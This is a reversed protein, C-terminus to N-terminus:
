QHFFDKNRRGSVSNTRYNNWERILLDNCSRKVFSYPAPIYIETGCFTSIRAFHDALENGPNGAHEKVWVLSALHKAKYLHEKASLVFNSKINASRLAENSSKIDAFIQIKVNKDLTWGAAFDITALEAQFVSNFINLKYCHVPLLSNREFICVSFGVNGDIKSGDTYVVYDCVFHKELIVIKENSHSGKIDRFFDLKLPDMLEIHKDSILKWINFRTALSKIVM